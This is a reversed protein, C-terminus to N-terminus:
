TRYRGVGHSLDAKTPIDVVGHVYDMIGFVQCVWCFSTSCTEQLTSPYTYVKRCNMLYFLLLVDDENSCLLPEEAMRRLTQGDIDDAQIFLENIMALITSHESGLRDM